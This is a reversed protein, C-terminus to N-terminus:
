FKIEKKKRSVQFGSSTHIYVYIYITFRRVTGISIFNRVLAVGKDVVESTLGQVLLM